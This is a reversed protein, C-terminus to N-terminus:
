LMRTYRALRRNIEDVSEAVAVPEHFDVLCLMTGPDDEAAFVSWTQVNAWNVYFQSETGYRTLKMVILCPEMPEMEM